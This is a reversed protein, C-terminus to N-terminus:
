RTRKGSPSSTDNLRVSSAIRHEPEDTHILRRTLLERLPAAATQEDPPLAGIYVDLHNSSWRQDRLIAHVDEFRSVLWWKFRADWCVPMEAHLRRYTPYPDAIFDRGTLNFTSLPTNTEV